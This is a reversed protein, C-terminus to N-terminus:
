ILSVITTLGGHSSVKIVHRVPDYRISGQGVNLKPDAGLAYFLDDTLTRVCEHREEDSLANWDTETMEFFEFVGKIQSIAATLDRHIDGYERAFKVGM